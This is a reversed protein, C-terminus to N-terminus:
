VVRCICTPSAQNHLDQGEYFPGRTASLKVSEASIEFVSGKVANPASEGELEQWWFRLPQKLSDVIWRYMSAMPANVDESFSPVSVTIGGALCCAEADGHTHPEANDALVKYSPPQFISSITPCELCGLLQKGYDCCTM